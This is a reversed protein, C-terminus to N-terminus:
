TANDVISSNSNCIARFWSEGMDEACGRSIRRDEAASARCRRDQTGYTARFWSGVMDEACAKSIRRDEAASARCRRDQTGYTTRFWNGAM